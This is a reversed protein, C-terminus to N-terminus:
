KVKIDVYELKTCGLDKMAQEIGREAAAGAGRYDTGEALTFAASFGTYKHTVVITKYKTTTAM